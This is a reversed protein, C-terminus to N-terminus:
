FWRIEQIKNASFAGKCYISSFFYARRNGAWWNKKGVQDFKDSYLKKYEIAIQYATLFPRGFHHDPQQHKPKVSRLIERISKEFGFDEWISM